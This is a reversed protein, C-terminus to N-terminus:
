ISGLKDKQMCERCRSCSMQMNPAVNEKRRTYSPVFLSQKDCVLLNM